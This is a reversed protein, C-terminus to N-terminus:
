CNRINTMYNDRRKSAQPWIPQEWSFSVREGPQVFIPTYLSDATQDMAVERIESHRVRGQSLLTSSAALAPLVKKDKKFGTQHKGTPEATFFEGGICSVCSIWTRDRLWSSGRSSSMAVWELIRAQLIRHVPFGSQSYNIPDWLTPRSQVDSFLRDWIFTQTHHSDPKRNLNAYLYGM